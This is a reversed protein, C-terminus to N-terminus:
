GNESIRVPDINRNAAIWDWIKIDGVGGFTKVNRYKSIINENKMIKNKASAFYRKTGSLITIGAMTNM